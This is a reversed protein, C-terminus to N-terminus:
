KQESLKRVGGCMPCHYNLQEDQYGSVQCVPCLSRAHLWDRYSDLRDQVFDEDWVVDYMACFEKVREWAESEMKLLQIDEDYDKHKLVAHAAEHLTLLAIKNGPLGEFDPSYFVTVPPRFMFREGVEFVVGPFDERLRRILSKIKLMSTAVM